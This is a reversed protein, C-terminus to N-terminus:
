ISSLVRGDLFFGSAKRYITLAVNLDLSGYWICFITVAFSSICFFYIEMSIVSVTAWNSPLSFFDLVCAAITNLFPFYWPVIVFLNMSFLLISGFFTLISFMVFLLDLDFDGNWTGISFSLVVNCSIHLSIAAASECMKGTISFPLTSPITCVISTSVFIEDAYLPSFHSSSALMFIVVIVSPSSMPFAIVSNLLFPISWKGTMSSLPFSVPISLM